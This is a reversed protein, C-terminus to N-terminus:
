KMKRKYILPLYGFCELVLLGGFIYFVTRSAFVDTYFGQLIFIVVSLILNFVFLSIGKKIFAFYFFSLIPISLAIVILLRSIFGTLTQDLRYSFFLLLFSIIFYGQGRNLHKRQSNNM